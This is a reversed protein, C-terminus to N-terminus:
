LTEVLQLSSCGAPVDGLLLIEIQRVPCRANQGGFQEVRVWSTKILALQHVVILWILFGQHELILLLGVERRVAM